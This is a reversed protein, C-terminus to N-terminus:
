WGITEYPFGVKQLQRSIILQQIQTTGDLIQCAKADRFLKEVIFDRTLGAGGHIQIGETTARM